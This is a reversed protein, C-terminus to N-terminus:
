FRHLETFTAGNDTSKLIAAETAIYVDSEGYGLIAQPGGPVSGAEAWSAGGDDSTHVVGDPTVGVLRDKAVWDVFYLVPSGEILAFTEGGDTSRQVGQQTTALIEDADKPSVAIDALPLDARPQWSKKDETVMLRGTQSDFGYVHGHGAEMTHFDAEGSLSVPNWTEGGDTTEILGLHPPQDSSPGPHGSGLFHDPGVVTFGMFDQTLGGVQKPDGDGTVRFLGMHSAAFLVGDAPNVGLGHVHALEAHGGDDHGDGPPEPESGCGALVFAATGLVAVLRNGIWM